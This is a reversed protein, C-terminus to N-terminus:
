KQLNKPPFPSHHVLLPESLRRPVIPVEVPEDNETEVWSSASTDSSTAISEPTINMIGPPLGLDEVFSSSSAAVQAPRENMIGPPLDINELPHVTAKKKRCILGKCFEWCYKLIKPIKYWYKFILWGLFFSVVVDVALSIWDAIDFDSFLISFLVSLCNIM